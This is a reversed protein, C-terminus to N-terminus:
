GSSIRGYERTDTPHLYKCNPCSPSSKCMMVLMYCKNCVATVMEQEDVELSLWSPSRRISSDRTSSIMVQDSSKAQLGIDQKNSNNELHNYQLHQTPLNLELDLSMPTPSPSSRASLRPDTLARRQTKTNLFYVQGSKVDLCRQWELPLPSSSQLEAELFSKMTKTKDLAKEEDRKRKKSLTEEVSLIRESTHFSLM